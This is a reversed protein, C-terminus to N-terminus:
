RKIADDHDSAKQNPKVREGPIDFANAGEKEL